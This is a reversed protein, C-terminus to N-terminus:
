IGGKLVKVRNRQEIIALAVVSAALEILILAAAVALLKIGASGTAGKVASAVSSVRAALELFRSLLGSNVIFCILLQLVWTASFLLIYEKYTRFFDAGFLRRVIFRRQYKNFFIILNQIVLFLLGAILGLSTLWLQNMWQQLLYIQQLMFQDVTVLYKLNDDLKLRQLEPELTKLTLATDRDILRVKLPDSGGGGNMMNARDACLSNKETVVQIIPDIIVNNEPPFVEPNFSFIQQNNALWIIKIQQNKM